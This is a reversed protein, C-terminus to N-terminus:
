KQVLKRLLEAHRDLDSFLAEVHEPTMVTLYPALRHFTGALYTGTLQQVKKQDKEGTVVLFLHSGWIDRAHQLKALAEILNGKDQVEFVADPRVGGAYEKWVVDYRYPAESFEAEAYYGLLLAIHSLKDELGKHLREPPPSLPPLPPRLPPPALPEVAGGIELYERGQPTIRWIGRPERYLCGAVVLAQRVWQVRNPWTLGGSKRRLRKDEDTLNPFHAEVRRIAEAMPLEGGADAIVRLLPLRIDKETPLSM